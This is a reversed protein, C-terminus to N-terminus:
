INAFIWYMLLYDNNSVYKTTGEKDKLKPYKLILKNCVTKYQESTPYITHATMYTHLVQVIERGM